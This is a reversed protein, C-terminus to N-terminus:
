SCSVTALATPGAPPAAVHKTVTTSTGAALPDALFEIGADQPGRVITCTPRSTTTGGNTIRVVVDISGDPYAAQGQVSAPFPGAPTVLFKAALAIVILAGAVAGLILGHVQTATPGAIGTPNCTECLGVDPSRTPNGCRYCRGPVDAALSAGAVPGPPGAAATAAAAGTPHTM